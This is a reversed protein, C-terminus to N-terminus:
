FLHFILTIDKSKNKGPRRQEVEDPLIGFCSSTNTNDYSSNKTRRRSLESKNRGTEESDVSKQRRELRMFSYLMQWCLLALNLTGFLFPFPFYLGTQFEFSM